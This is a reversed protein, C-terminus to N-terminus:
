YDHTNTPTEWYKSKAATNLLYDIQVQPAGIEELAKAQLAICELEAKEGSFVSEPVYQGPHKKIYDHWQKSHNADHVISGAYWATGSAFLKDSAFFRPPNDWPNMGSGFKVRLIVGMNDVVMKFYDPAETQLLDLAAKTQEVFNDNGIIQIEGVPSRYIETYPTNIEGQIFMNPRGPLGGDLQTKSGSSTGGRNTSIVKPGNELISSHATTALGGLLSIGAVSAVMLEAGMTKAHHKLGNTRSTTPVDLIDKKDLM